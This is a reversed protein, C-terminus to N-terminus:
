NHGYTKLFVMIGSDNATMLTRSIDDGLITQPNVAQKINLM